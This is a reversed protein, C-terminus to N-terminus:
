VALHPHKTARGVAYTALSGGFMIAFAGAKSGPSLSDNLTTNVEIEQALEDDWVHAVAAAGGGVALVIGTDLSIFRGLDLPAESFVAAISPPTTVVDGDGAPSQPAALAKAPPAGAWLVAVMVLLAAPHHRRRASLRTCVTTVLNNPIAALGPG